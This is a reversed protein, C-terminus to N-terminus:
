ISMFDNNLFDLIDEKSNTLGKYILSDSTM